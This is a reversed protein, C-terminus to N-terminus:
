FLIESSCFSMSFCGYILNVKVFQFTQIINARPLQVKNEELSNHNLNNLGETEITKNVAENMADRLDMVESSYTDLRTKIDNLIDQNTKVSNLLQSKVRDLM